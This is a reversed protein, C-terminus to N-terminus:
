ALNESPDYEEGGMAPVNTDQIDDHM